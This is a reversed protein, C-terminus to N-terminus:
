VYMPGFCILGFVLGVVFSYCHRTTSNVKSPHLVHKMFFGLLISIFFLIVYRIQILHSTLPLAPLLIKRQLSVKDVSMGTEESLPVFITAELITFPYLGM